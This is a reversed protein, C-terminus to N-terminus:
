KEWRRKLKTFLEEALFMIERDEIKYRRAAKVLQQFLTFPDKCRPCGLPHEWVAIRLDDELVLTALATGCKSCHYSGAMVHWAKEPAGRLGEFSAPGEIVEEKM